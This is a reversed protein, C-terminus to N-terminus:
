VRRPRYTGAREISFLDDSVRLCFRDFVFVFDECGEAVLQAAEDLVDAPGLVPVHEQGRQLVEGGDLLWEHAVFYVGKGMEATLREVLRASKKGGWLGDLREVFDAVLEGLGLDLLVEDGEGHAEGFGVPERRFDGGGAEEVLGVFVGRRLRLFAQALLVRLEHVVVRGHHPSLGGRVQRFEDLAHRGGDHDVLHDRQELVQGGVILVAHAQQRDLHQNRNGLRHGLLLLATM